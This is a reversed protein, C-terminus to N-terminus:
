VTTTSGSAACDQDVACSQASPSLCRGGPLMTSLSGTYDAVGSMSDNFHVVYSDLRIDSAEQNRFVANIVTQTFPEAMACSGDMAFMCCEQVVDGEASSESVADAQTLGASDWHLFQLVLREDDGNTSGCGAALVALLAAGTMSRSLWRMEGER